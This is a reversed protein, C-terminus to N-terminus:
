SDAQERNFAVAEEYRVRDGGFIDLASGITLHVRGQGLETV